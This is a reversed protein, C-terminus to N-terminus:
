KRFFITGSLLTNVTLLYAPILIEPVTYVPVVALALANGVISLSFTYLTEERPRRWAHRFTPLAGTADIVVFFILAAMPNDTWWWMFLGLIAGFQCCADFLSYTFHAKELSFLIIISCELVLASSIVGSAVAGESFSAGTAILALVLWTAWSVIAPYTKGRRIDLVYPIATSLEILGAILVLPTM